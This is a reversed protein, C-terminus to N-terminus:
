ALGFVTPLMAGGSFFGMFNNSDFNILAYGVTGLLILISIWQINHQMKRTIKM